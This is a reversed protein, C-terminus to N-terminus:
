FNNKYLADCPREINYEDIEKKTIPLNNKVRYVLQELTYTPVFKTGDDELRKM